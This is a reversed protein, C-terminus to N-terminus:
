NKEPVKLRFSFSTYKGPNSDVKISGDAATIIKKVISLGIGSSELGYNDKESVTGFLQFIS